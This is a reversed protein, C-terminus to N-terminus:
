WYERKYLNWQWEKQMIFCAINKTYYDDTIQKHSNLPYKKNM